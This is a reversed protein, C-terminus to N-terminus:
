RKEPGQALSCFTPGQSQSAADAAMWRAEYDTKNENGADIVDGVGGTVVLPPVM